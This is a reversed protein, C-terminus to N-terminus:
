KINFHEKNNRAYQAILTMYPDNCNYFAEDCENLEEIPDEQGSHENYIEIAKKCIEAIEYAKIAEASSVLIDNWRTGKNFFLQDFGGNNVEVAVLAMAMFVKEQENLKSLDHGYDSKDCLYDYISDFLADDDQEWINETAYSSQEEIQQPTNKKASKKTLLSIFAVIAIAVIAILKIIHYANMNSHSYTKQNTTFGSEQYWIYM